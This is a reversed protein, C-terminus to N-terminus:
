KCVYGHMRLGSFLGAISSQFKHLRDDEFVAVLILSKVLSVVAAFAWQPYTKGYQKLLIVTNKAMYYRRQASHHSPWVVRGLLRERKMHGVQHTMVVQCTVGFLVGQRRARLSFEMDVLDVFLPECFPGIRDVTALPLLMGSTTLSSVPQWDGQGECVSALWQRQSRAELFNSGLIADPSAMQIWVNKLVNVMHQHPTSDQDFLLVHSYARSRAWEIGQNLAHGLGVNRENRILSCSCQSIARDVRDRSEPTPSNDIVLAGDVQRAIEDLRKAFDNDPDYAVVIACIRM